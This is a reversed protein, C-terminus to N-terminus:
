SKFKLKWQRNQGETGKYVRTTTPSNKVKEMEGRLKFGSKGCDTIKLSIFVRLKYM